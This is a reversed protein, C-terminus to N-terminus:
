ANPPRPLPSPEFTHAAFMAAAAVPARGPPAQPGTIDPLAFAAHCILGCYCNAAPKVPAPNRDPADDSQPMADGHMPCPVNHISQDSTAAIAAVSVMLLHSVVPALAFVMALLLTPLFSSCFRTTCRAMGIVQGSCTDQDLGVAGAFWSNAGSNM